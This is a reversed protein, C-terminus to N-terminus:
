LKIYSKFNINFYIGTHTKVSKINIVAINNLQHILVQLPWPTPAVGSPTCKGTCVGCSRGHMASIATNKHLNVVNPANASQM